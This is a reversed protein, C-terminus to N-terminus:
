VADTYRIHSNPYLKSFIVFRVTTDVVVAAKEAPKCAYVANDVMQILEYPLRHSSRLQSLLSLMSACRDSTERGAYLFKGCGDLLACTLQIHAHSFDSLLAQLLGFIQTASVLRFKVLEALYAAPVMAAALYM